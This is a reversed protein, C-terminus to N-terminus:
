KGTKAKLYDIYKQLEPEDASMKELQSDEIPFGDWFAKIVANAFGSAKVTELLIDIADFNKSLGLCFSVKLSLANKEMSVDNMLKLFELNKENDIGSLDIKFTLGSINQLYNEAANEKIVNSIMKEKKVVKTKISNTNIFKFVIRRNILIGTQNTTSDFKRNKAAPYQGGIARLYIRNGAIGLRQLMTATKECQSLTFLLSIEKTQLDDSHGSIVIKLEPNKLMLKATENLSKDAYAELNGEADFNLDAYYFSDSKIQLDTNAINENIKNKFLYNYMDFEIIKFVPERFLLRYNDYGGFGNQRISSFWVEKKDLEPRFFIDDGPLNIPFPFPIPANNEQLNVKFIDFGGISEPRNSSFFLEASKNAAFAAREDFVTNVQPGLNKIRSWNGKDDRLAAYIDLAGYGGSLEASFLMLSDTILHCDALEINELGKLKVALSKEYGDKFNDFFLKGEQLYLIQYGNDPFAVLQQNSSPNYRADLLVASNNEHGSFKEFFLEYRGRRSSSFYLLGPNRPNVVPAFDDSESNTSKGLPLLLAFDNSRITKNANSAQMLLLKAETRLHSEPSSVKLFLRYLEVSKQYNELHHLTRATYFIADDNHKKFGLYNQFHILASDFRNLKFYCIARKYILDPHNASSNRYLELARAYNGKVFASEADGKQKADSRQSFATGNGVYNLLFFMLFLRYLAGKNM